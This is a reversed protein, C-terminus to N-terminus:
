CEFHWLFLIPDRKEDKSINSLEHVRVSAFYMEKSLITADAAKFASATGLNGPSM